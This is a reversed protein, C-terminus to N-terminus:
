CMKIALSRLYFKWIPYWRNRVSEDTQLPVTDDDGEDEVQEM